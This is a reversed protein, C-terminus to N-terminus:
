AIFQVGSRIKYVKTLPDPQSFSAALSPEITFQPTLRMLSETINTVVTNEEYNYCYIWDLGSPEYFLGWNVKDIEGKATPTLVTTGVTPKGGGAPTGGGSGCAALFSAIAPATLGLAGARILLERRTVGGSVYDSRLKQLDDSM